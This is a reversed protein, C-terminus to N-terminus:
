FGAVAVHSGESRAGLLHGCSRIALAVSTLTPNAAEGSSLVGNGGLYLNDIGWVRSTKADVVSENPDTGLRVTGHVHLVLGPEMFQPESGPLFGGLARAAQVMDELMEHQRKRDYKVWEDAIKP